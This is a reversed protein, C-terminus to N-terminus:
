SGLHEHSVREKEKLQRRVEELEEPDAGATIAAVAAGQTCYCSLTEIRLMEYM